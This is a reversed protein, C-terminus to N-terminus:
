NILLESTFLVTTVLIVYVILVPISADGPLHYRFVQFFYLLNILLIVLLFGSYIILATNSLTM